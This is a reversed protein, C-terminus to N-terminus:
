SRQNDSQRCFIGAQVFRMHEASFELVQPNVKELLTPWLRYIRAQTQVGWVDPQAQDRARPHLGWLPRRALWMKLCIQALNASARQAQGAFNSDFCISIRPPRYLM